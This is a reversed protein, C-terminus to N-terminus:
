RIKYDKLEKIKEKGKSNDGTHGGIHVQQKSVVGIKAFTYLGLFLISAAAIILAFLPVLFAMILGLVLLLPIFFIMAVINSASFRIMM